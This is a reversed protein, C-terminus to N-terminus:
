GVNWRVAANILLAILGILILITVMVSFWTPVGLSNSLPDFITSVYKFSNFLQQMAAKMRDLNLLFNSDDAAASTGQFTSYTQNYDSAISSLAPYEDLISTSDGGYIAIGDAFLTTYATLISVFVVMFIALHSFRM